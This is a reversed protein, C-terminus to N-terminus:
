NGRCTDRKSHLNATENENRNQRIMQAIQAVREEPLGIKQAIAAMQMRPADDAAAARGKNGKNLLM